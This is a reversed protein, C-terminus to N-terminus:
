FLAFLQLTGQDVPLVAEQIVTCVSDLAFSELKLCTRANVCVASDTGCVKLKLHLKIKLHLVTVFAWVSPRCLPLRSLPESCHCYMVVDETCMGAFQLM